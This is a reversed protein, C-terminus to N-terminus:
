PIQHAGPIGQDFTSLIAGNMEALRLLHGDTVQRPWLVWGPLQFIDNGDPIFLLPVSSSEKMVLLLDRAQEVTYGYSAQSLVRVFGLETTPCTLLDSSVLSGAWAIVRAHFQHNVVGLAMLANVDLLYKM